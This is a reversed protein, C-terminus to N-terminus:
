GEENAVQVSLSLHQYANARSPDSPPEGKYLLYVLRMREGAITPTVQHRLNETTSAAVRRQYRDLTASERISGNPGVRHLEVVATYTVANGERNTIELVLEETTGVTMNTPYGGAVLSGSENETLLTTETYGGGDQPAVLAFSLTSVAVLISVGLLANGISGGIVAARASEIGARLSPDYREEAPLRARRVAGLIFYVVVLVAVTVVIPWSSLPFGFAWILLGLLPLLAVSLGFSLALREGGSLAAHTTWPRGDSRRTAIDATAPFLLTTLTYGPLFLLGGLALAIWIPGEAELLVGLVVALLAGFVLVADELVYRGDIM